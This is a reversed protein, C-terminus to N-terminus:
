YNFHIESLEYLLKSKRSKLFFGNPLILSYKKITSLLNFDTDWKGLSRLSSINEVIREGNPNFVPIQDGEVMFLKEEQHKNLDIEQWHNITFSITNFHLQFTSIKKLISCVFEENISDNLLILIRNDLYNEKKSLILCYVMDFIKIVATLGITEINSIVIACHFSNIASEKNLENFLKELPLTQPNIYEKYGLNIKGTELM